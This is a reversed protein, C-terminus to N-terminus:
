KGERGEMEGMKGRNEMWNKVEIKIKIGRDM